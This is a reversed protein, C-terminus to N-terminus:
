KGAGGGAKYIQMLHPLNARDGVGVMPKPRTVTEEFLRTGLGGAPIVVKMGHAGQLLRAISAQEAQRKPTAFLPQLAFVKQIFYGM